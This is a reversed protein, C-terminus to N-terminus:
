SLKKTNHSPSFRIFNVTLTYKLDITKKAADTKTCRSCDHICSKILTQRGL